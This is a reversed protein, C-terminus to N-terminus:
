EVAYGDERVCNDGVRVAPGINVLVIMERLHLHFASLNGVSGVLGFDILDGDGHGGLTRREVVQARDVPAHSEMMGDVM